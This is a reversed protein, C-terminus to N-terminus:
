FLIVFVSYDNPHHEIDQLMILKRVTEFMKLTGVLVYSSSDSQCHILAKNCLFYGLFCKIRINSIMKLIHFKTICPLLVMEISIM